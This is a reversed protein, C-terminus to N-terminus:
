RVTGKKIICEIGHTDCFTQVIRAAHKYWLDPDSVNCPADKSYNWRGFVIRDTFDVARLAVYVLEFPSAEGALAPFPEMSVWTKFGADHLGRLREIRKAYPAAGPEWRERFSEDLSSLSIGYENEPHLYEVTIGSCYGHEVDDIVSAFVPEGGRYEITPLLGKTLITVPIDHANLIALCNFTTDTVEQMAAFAVHDGENDSGARCKEYLERAYPLPDTTFCMHVRAVPEKRKTALERALIEQAGAVPRVRRWEDMGSVEHRRKAAAYAYCPFECGHACGVAHNMCYVGEGAMYEVKSKYLMRKRFAHECARNADFKMETEGERGNLRSRM